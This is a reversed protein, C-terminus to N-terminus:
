AQRDIRFAYFIKVTFVITYLQEIASQGHVDPFTNSDPTEQVLSIIDIGISSLQEPNSRILEDIYSRIHWMMRSPPSPSDSTFEPIDPIFRVEVYINAIDPNDQLTADTNIFEPNEHVSRVHIHVDSHSGSTLDFRRGFTIKDKPPILYHDVTSYPNNTWSDELWSTLLLSIDTNTTDHLLSIDYKYVFM